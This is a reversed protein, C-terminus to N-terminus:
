TGGKNKILADEYLGCLEGVTTRETLYFEGHYIPNISFRSELKETLHVQDMSTLGLDAALQCDNAVEPVERNKSRIIEVIADRVAAEVNESLVGLKAERCWGEELHGRSGLM